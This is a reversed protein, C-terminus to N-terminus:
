PTLILRTLSCKIDSFLIAYKNISNTSVMGKPMNVASPNLKDLGIDGAAPYLLPSLIAPVRDPPFDVVFTNLFHYNIFNCLSSVSFVCTM